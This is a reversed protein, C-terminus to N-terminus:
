ESTYLKAINIHDEVRSNMFRSFVTSSFVLLETTNIERKFFFSQLFVNENCIFNITIGSHMTKERFKEMINKSFFDEWFTMSRQSLFHCLEPLHDEGFIERFIKQHSLWITLDPYVIKFFGETEEQSEEDTM